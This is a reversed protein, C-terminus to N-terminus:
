LQPLKESCASAEVTAIIRKQRTPQTKANHIWRLVNRRYSPAAANFYNSATVSRSLAAALDDPIVLTDVDATANWLGALKSKEIADLGSQHMLGLLILAAVRDKYSKAWAQQRRPSILQMTRNDDLKRRLGDIWGFCMLEDLVQERSVYRDPLHKKYTVLWVSAERYWNEM